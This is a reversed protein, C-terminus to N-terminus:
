GNPIIMYIGRFSKRIDVRLGKKRYYKRTIAGATERPTRPEYGPKPAPLMSNKDYKQYYRLKVEAEVLRSIHQGLEKNSKGALYAAVITDVLKVRESKLGAVYKNVSSSAFVGSSLAIGLVVGFMIKSIKKM